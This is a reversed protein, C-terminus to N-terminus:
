RKAKGTMCTIDLCLGMARHGGNKVYEKGKEMFDPSFQKLLKHLVEVKEEESVERIKGFVIVSEYKTSFQEPIVETDGVVCFSVNPNQKINELKHGELACHFYIKYDEYIYTLPVGYPMGEADVTSLVGYQGKELIEIISKQDIERDKRRIQHM